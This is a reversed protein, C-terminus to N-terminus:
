TFDVTEAVDIVFKLLIPGSTQTYSTVFMCIFLSENKYFLYLVQWWIGMAFKGDIINQIGIQRIDLFKYIVWYMVDYYQYALIYFM